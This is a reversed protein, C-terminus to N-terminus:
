TTPNYVAIWPGARAVDGESGGLFCALTGAAAGPRAARAPADVLRRRRGLREAARRTTPPDITSHDIV